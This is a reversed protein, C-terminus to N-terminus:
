SAGTSHFLNSTSILDSGLKCVNLFFLSFKNINLIAKVYNQMHCKTINSVTYIEAKCRHYDNSYKGCKPTLYKLIQM